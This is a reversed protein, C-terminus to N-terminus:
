PCGLIKLFLVFNLFKLKTPNFLFGSACICLVHAVSLPIKEIGFIGEEIYYIWILIRFRFPELTELFRHYGFFQTSVQHSLFICIKNSRVFFFNFSSMEATHFLLLPLPIM